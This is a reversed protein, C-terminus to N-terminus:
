LDGGSAEAGPDRAGHVPDGVRDHRPLRRGALPPTRESRARGPLGRERVGAPQGAPRVEVCPRPHAVALHLLHRRPLQTPPGGRRLPVCRHRGLLPHGDDPRACGRQHLCPADPHAAGGAAGRPVRPHEACLRRDPLRGHRQLPGPPRGLRDERRGRPLHVHARAVSGGDRWHHEARAGDRHRRHLHRRLHHDPGRDRGHPPQLVPLCRWWWRHGPRDESVPLDARLGADAAADRHRRRVPAAEQRPGHLRAAANGPLRDLRRRRGAADPPCGAKGPRRD